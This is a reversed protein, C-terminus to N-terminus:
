PEEALYDATGGGTPVWVCRRGRRPPIRDATAATSAIGKCWSMRLRTRGFTILRRWRPTSWLVHDWQSFLPFFFCILRESLQGSKNVTPMTYADHIKSNLKLTQTIWSKAASRWGWPKLRWLAWLLIPLFGLTDYCRCRHSLSPHWLKLMFSQEM